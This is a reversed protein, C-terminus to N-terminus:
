QDVGTSQDSAEEVEQAARNLSRALLRAEEATMSYSRLPNLTVVLVTRDAPNQVETVAYVNAKLQKAGAPLRTAGATTATKTEQKERYSAIFVELAAESYRPRGPTPDTELVRNKRSPRRENALWVEWHLTTGGLANALHAAAQPAALTPSDSEQM